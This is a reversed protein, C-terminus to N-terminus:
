IHKEDEDVLEFRDSLTKYRIQAIEYAKEFTEKDPYIFLITDHDNSEIYSELKTHNIFWKLDEFRELTEKKSLEFAYRM